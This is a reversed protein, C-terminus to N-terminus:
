LVARAPRFLEGTAGLCVRALLAVVPLVACLRRM